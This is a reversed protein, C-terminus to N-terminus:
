LFTIDPDFRKALLAGCGYKFLIAGAGYSELYKKTQKLLRTRLLLEDVGCTNKVEIWKIWHGRVLVPATFLFDPTGSHQRKSTAKQDAESVFAIGMATLDQAVEEEFATALLRGKAEEEQSPVTLDCEQEEKTPARDYVHKALWCPSIDHKSSLALLSMRKAKKQLAPKQQLWRQSMCFVESRLAWARLMCLQAVTLQKAEESARAQAELQPYLLLPGWLGAPTLWALAAEEKLKSFALVLRTWKPTTM